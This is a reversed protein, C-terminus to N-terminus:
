YFKIFIFDYNSGFFGPFYFPSDNQAKNSTLKFSSMFDKLLLLGPFM